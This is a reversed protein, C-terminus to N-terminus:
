TRRPPAIHHLCTGNSSYMLKDTFKTQHVHRSCCAHTVWYYALDVHQSYKLDTLCETSRVCIFICDSFYMGTALFCGIWTTVKFTDFAISEIRYNDWIYNYTVMQLSGLFFRSMQQITGASLSGITDNMRYKAQSYKGEHPKLGVGKDKFTYYLLEVFIFAIFWPTTDAVYPPVEAVTAFTTAKPSVLYFMRGLSEAVKIATM